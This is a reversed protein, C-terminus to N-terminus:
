GGLIDKFYREIETNGPFLSTLFPKIAIRSANYKITQDKTPRNISGLFLVEALPNDPYNHYAKELLSKGRREYTLYEKGDPDDDSYFFYPFLSMMYGFMCLIKEDDCFNEIGYFCSDILNREFLEYDLGENKIWCHWEAMVLWCESALRILAGINDKQCIWREYLLKRIIEWQEDQELLQLNEVFDFYV